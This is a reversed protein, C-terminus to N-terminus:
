SREIDIIRWAAGNRRLFYRLYAPRYSDFCPGFSSVVLEAADENRWRVFHVLLVAEDSDLDLLAGRRRASSVTAIGPHHNGLRELLAPRPDSLDGVAVIVTPVQQYEAEHVFMAEILEYDADTTPTSNMWDSHCAYFFCLLFLVDLGV